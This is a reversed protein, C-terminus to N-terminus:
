KGDVISRRCVVFIDVIKLQQVFTALAIRDFIKMIQFTGFYVFM